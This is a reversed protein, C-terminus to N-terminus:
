SFAREAQQELSLDQPTKLLLHPLGVSRLLFVTKLPRPPDQAALPALGRQGLFVSNTGNGHKVSLCPSSPQVAAQHSCHTQYAPTLFHLRGPGHKAQQPLVAWHEPGHKAQQSSSTGASLAM